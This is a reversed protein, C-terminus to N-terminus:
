TLLIYVNTYCCTTHSIEPIFIPILEIIDVLNDYSLWHPCFVPNGKWIEVVVYGELNM